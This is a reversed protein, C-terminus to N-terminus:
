FIDLIQSNRGVEVVAVGTWTELNRVRIVACAVESM